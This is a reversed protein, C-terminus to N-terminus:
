PESVPNLQRVEDRLRKPVRGCLRVYSLLRKSGFLKRSVEHVLPCHGFYDPLLTPRFIQTYVTMEPDASDVLVNDAVYPSFNQPYIATQKREGLNQNIWLQAERASIGQNDFWNDSPQDFFIASENQYVHLYPFLQIVSITPAVLGVTLLTGFIGKTLRSRGVKSLANLAFGAILTLLPFVFLYQRAADYLASGSLSGILVPGAGVGFAIVIPVLDRDPMSRRLLSRFVRILLLILAIVFGLGVVIPTQLLLMFPGFWRTTPAMFEGNVVVPVSSPFKRSVSLGNGWWWIPNRLLYGNTAFLVVLALAAPKILLRLHGVRWLRQAVVVQIVMVIPWIGPRTGLTLLLGLCLCWAFSRRTQLLSESCYAISLAAILLIMGSALPIDKENFFSNGVFAPSLVLLATSVRAIRKSSTTTRLSIWLGVYALISVLFVAANRVAVASSSYPDFTTNTILAGVRLLVYVITSVTYGYSALVEPTAASYNASDTGHLLVRINARTFDMMVASDVNSGVRVAAFLGILGLCCALIMVARRQFAVVVVKLVFRQDRM